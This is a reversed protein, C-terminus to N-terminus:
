DLLTPQKTPQKTKSTILQHELHTYLYIYVCRWITYEKIYICMIKLAFISICYFVYKIMNRYKCTNVYTCIYIYYVHCHICTHVYIPSSYYHWSHCISGWFPLSYYSVQDSHFRFPSPRPTPTCSKIGYVQYTKSLWNRCLIPDVPNLDTKRIKKCGNKRNFHCRKLKTQSKKLRTTIWYFKSESGPVTRYTCNM